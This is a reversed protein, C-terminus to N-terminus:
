PCGFMRPVCLVVNSNVFSSSILKIPSQMTPTLASKSNPLNFFNILFDILFLLLFIVIVIFANDFDIVIFSVTNMVMFGFKLPSLSNTMLFVSKADSLVNAIFAFLAAKSNFLSKIPNKFSFFFLILTILSFSRYFLNLIIFYSMRRYIKYLIEELFVSLNKFSCFMM